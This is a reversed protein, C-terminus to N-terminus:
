WNERRMESWGDGKYTSDRRILIDQMSYPFRISDGEGLLKGVRKVKNWIHSLQDGDNKKQRLITQFEFHPHNPCDQDPKSGLDAVPKCPQAGCGQSQIPKCFIGGELYTILCPM